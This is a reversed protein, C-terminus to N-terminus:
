GSPYHFARSPHFTQCHYDNRQVDRVYSYVKPPTESFLLIRAATVRFSFTLVFSKERLDSPGVFVSAEALVVPVQIVSVAARELMKTQRSYGFLLCFGFLFVKTTDNKRVIHRLGNSRIM